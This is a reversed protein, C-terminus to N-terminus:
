YFDNWYGGSLDQALTDYRTSSVAGNRNVTTTYEPRSATSSGMRNFLSETNVELEGIIGSPTVGERIM